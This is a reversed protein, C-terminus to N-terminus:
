KLTNKYKEWDDKQVMVYDMGFMRVSHENNLVQEIAQKILPLKEKPIERQYSRLTYPHYFGKDSVHHRMDSGYERLIEVEASPEKLEEFWDTNSIAGYSMRWGNKSEYWNKGSKEKEFEEGAAIVHGSSFNLVDRLLKYKVSM